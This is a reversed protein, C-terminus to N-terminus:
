GGRTYTIVGRCVEGSNVNVARAVIRDDGARNATRKSVEFSGSPAQTVREGQWFVDGNDKLRVSWTKGVRNQDVEFEMDIRGDDLGVKLKWDSSGSCSGTKIVDSDNAAVPGAMATLLMATAGLVGLFRTKGRM